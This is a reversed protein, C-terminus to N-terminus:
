KRGQRTVKRNCMLANPQLGHIIGTTFTAFGIKKKKGVVPNQLANYVCVDSVM